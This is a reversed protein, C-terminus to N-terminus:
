EKYFELLLGDYEGIIFKLIQKNMDLGLTSLPLFLCKCKTIEKFNYRYKDCKCLFESKSDYKDDYKVLVEVSGANIYKKIAIGELVNFKIGDLYLKDMRDTILNAFHIYAISYVFIILSAILAALLIILSFTSNNSTGYSSFYAIVTLILSMILNIIILRHSKQKLEVKFFILRSRVYDEKENPITYITAKKLRGSFEFVNKEM